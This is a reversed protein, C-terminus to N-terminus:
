CHPSFHKPDVIERYKNVMIKLDEWTPQKLHPNRLLAAPHYIPMAWIGKWQYWNGRAKTIRGQPDILGQLATAGLLVLIKPKIIELQAELYALCVAREEPSPIRNQPPRCKVINAIYTHTFREMGCAELMKDLLQGAKGVFPRGMRDEEQGPGEGIFMLKADPNGEGFVVQSCGRRLGCNSCGLVQKQLAALAAGKSM